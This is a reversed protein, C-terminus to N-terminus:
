NFTLSSYFHAPSRRGGINKLVKKVIAISLNSKLSIEDVTANNIGESELERIAGFVQGFAEHMHVPLRIIDADNQIGRYIKQRIWWTAYTSFKYGLTYDFREAAEMLGINGLQILDMLSLGRRGIKFAISIVLRLNHNVLKEKAELNGKEKIQRGLEREEDITLLPYQSIDRFYAQLLDRDAEDYKNRNAVRSLSFKLLGLGSKNHTKNDISLNPHLTAPSKYVEIFGADIIEWIISKGQRRRNRLLGKGEFRRLLDWVIQCDDLGIENAISEVSNCCLSLVGNTHKTQIHEWIDQQSVGTIGAPAADPNTKITIGMAFTLSSTFVKSM